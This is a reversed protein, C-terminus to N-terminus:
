SARSTPKFNLSAKFSLPYETNITLSFFSTFILLLSLARIVFLSPQSTYKLNCASAPPLLLLPAVTSVDDDLFGYM